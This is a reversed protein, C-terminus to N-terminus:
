QLLRHQSNRGCNMHSLIEHGLGLIDFNEKIIKNMFGATPPLSGFM